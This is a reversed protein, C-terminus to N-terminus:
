CTDSSNSNSNNDSNNNNNDTYGIIFIDIEGINGNVTVIYM